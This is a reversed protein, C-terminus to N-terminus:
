RQKTGCVNCFKASVALEEGCNICFRTTKSSAVPVKIGSHGVPKQSNKLQQIQARIRGWIKGETRKYTVTGVGMALIAGGLTIVGLIGHALINKGWAGTGLAVEFDEPHGRIICDLSRRTGTASRFLGKKTLQIQFWSHPPKHDRNVRVEFGDKKAYDAVFDALKDLSVNFDVFREDKGM